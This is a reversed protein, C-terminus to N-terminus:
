KDIRNESEPGGARALEYSCVTGGTEQHGTGGQM